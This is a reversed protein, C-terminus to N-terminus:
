FCLSFRFWTPSKFRLTACSSQARGTTTMSIMAAPMLTCSTALSAATGWTSAAGADTLVMVGGVEAFLADATYTQTWDDVGTITIASTIITEAACTLGHAVVSTGSCVSVSM